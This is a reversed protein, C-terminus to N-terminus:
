FISRRISKGSRPLRSTPAGPNAGGNKSAGARSPPKSRRFRRTSPARVAGRINERAMRLLDRTPEGGPQTLFPETSGHFHVIRQERDVVVSPPSYRELLERAVTQAMSLRQAGADVREPSITRLLHPFTEVAGKAGGRRRYIRWKKDITEYLPSGSGVTESTGLFLTGGEKLGFHLLGLVRDQVEPELYILLNRCTCIHLRSFPPDQLVNQPAFVVADRLEKKVRYSSDEKDFFRDLRAASVEAEIGGPYVGQRAHSLSRAATDTAFVKIDFKKKAAEAAEILLIALTYAEEGSSCATVWARLSSDTEETAVLPMIVQTRLAEWAPEDRFFGTVHIMLDDALETAETPSQRSCAGYDGLATIQHLGMRRQIRRVVTPTKYGSFDHRTRMRLCALIEKFILRDGSAGERKIHEGRAYPHAAYKLLAEPIEAPKLVLDAFGADILNQPMGTFKASAVDQAICVGGVAKVEQAGLSGNNGMGSMVVCIARERQEAALSRFFDDVPKRHGRKELPEGLHLAGEVITLTRGPRIVYVHNAEVKMGDHIEQCKMKTHRALLETMLSEREPPLHQVVIFAMGSDPPMADLFASVAELGGASAGIGVVLFPLRPKVEVDVAEALRDPISTQVGEGNPREEGNTKEGNILACGPSIGLAFGESPDLLFPVLTQPANCQRM